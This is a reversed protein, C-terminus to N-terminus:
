SAESPKERAIALEQDLGSRIFAGGKSSRLLGESSGLIFFHIECCPSRTRYRNSARIPTNARNVISAAENIKTQVLVRM